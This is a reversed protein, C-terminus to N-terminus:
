RARRERAIAKLREAVVDPQGPALRRVLEPRWVQHLLAEVQLRAHREVLEDACAYAVKPSRATPGDWGRVEAAARQCLRALAPVVWEEDVDRTAWVAARVLLENGPRFLFQDSVDFGHVEPDGPTPETAAALELLTRLLDVFRRDDVLDTTRARWRAPAVGGCPQGLHTIAPAAGDWGEALETVLYRAPGGFADGLEIATLDVLWGPAGAAVL